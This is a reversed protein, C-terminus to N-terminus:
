RPVVPICAHLDFTTWGIEEPLRVFMEMAPVDAPEYPHDPLWLRYLYQWAQAVHGLDGQCHVSVIDHPAFDRLTLEAAECAARTPLVAQPQAARGRSRLIEGLIGERELPFAIGLDHRIKESPTVAPDDLSPTALTSNSRVRSNPRAPL